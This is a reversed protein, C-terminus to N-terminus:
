GFSVRLSLCRGRGPVHQALRGAGEVGVVCGDGVVGGVLGGGVGGGRWDSCVAVLVLSAVVLANSLLTWYMVNSASSTKAPAMVFTGAVGQIVCVAVFVLAGRSVASSLKMIQRRKGKCLDSPRPSDMGVAGSQRSGRM